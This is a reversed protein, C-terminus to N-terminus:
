VEEIQRYVPATQEFRLDTSWGDTELANYLVGYWELLTEDSPSPGEVGVKVQFSMTVSNGDGLSKQAAVQVPTSHPFSPTTSSSWQLAMTM